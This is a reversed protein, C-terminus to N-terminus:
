SFLDVYAVWLIVNNMKGVVQAVLTNGQDWLSKQFKEERFLSRAAFFM